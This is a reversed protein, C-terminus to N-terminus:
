ANNLHGYREDRQLRLAEGVAEKYEAASPDPYRVPGENMAYTDNKEAHLTAARVLSPDPLVPLEPTLTPIMALLIVM